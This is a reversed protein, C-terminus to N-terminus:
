KVGSRMKYADLLFYFYFLQVAKAFFFKFLLFLKVSTDVAINAM